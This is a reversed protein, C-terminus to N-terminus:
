GPEWCAIGWDGVVSDGRESGSPRNERMRSEPRRNVKNCSQCAHEHAKELSYPGHEGFFAIPGRQHDAGRGRGKRGKRKRPISRLRMRIRGAPRGLMNWHSHKFYEFWGKSTRNIAAGGNAKVKRFGPRLNPPSYAKDALSFRKGGKVVKELATVMREAWVSPEVGDWRFRIAGAQKAEEPVGAPKNETTGGTVIGGERTEKAGDGNRSKTAAM